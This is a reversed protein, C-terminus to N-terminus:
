KLSPIEIGEILSAHALERAQEVTRGERRSQEFVLAAREARGNIFESDFERSDGADHLISLLTMNYSGFEIKKTM